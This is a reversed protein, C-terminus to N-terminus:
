GPEGAAGRALDSISGIVISEGKPERGVM